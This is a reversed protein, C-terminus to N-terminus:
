LCLHIHLKQSSGCGKLSVVKFRNEGELTSGLRVLKGEKLEMNTVEDMPEPFITQKSKDLLDIPLSTQCIM